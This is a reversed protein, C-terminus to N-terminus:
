RPSLGRMQAVAKEAAARVQEDGDRTLPVVDNLLSPGAVLGLAAVAAERVQPAAHRLLPRLLTPASWRTWRSITCGLVVQAVDQSSLLGRVRAAGVGDLRQAGFLREAAEEQGSELMAWPDSPDPGRAQRQGEQESRLASARTERVARQATAEADRRAARVWPAEQEQGQGQGQEPARRVPAERRPPPPREVVVEADPIDEVAAAAAATPALQLPQIHRVPPAWRTLVGELRCLVAHVPTAHHMEPLPLCLVQEGPAIAGGAVRVEAIIQGQAACLRVTLTSRAFTQSSQNHVEVLLTGEQATTSPLRVTARRVELVTKTTTSTM